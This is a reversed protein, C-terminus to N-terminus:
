DEDPMGDRRQKATYARSVDCSLVDSFLEQAKQWGGSAYQDYDVGLSELSRYSAVWKFDFEVKGGGYAPFLVWLGAESGNAGRYEAWAKLAPDVDSFTKGEKISCDSFTLIFSTADDDPPQKFNMTAFNSHAGCTAMENFEARLSGSDALFQDYARGMSVADPSVGLWIFDFDQEEGYYFPTMTYGSYPASNASDAWANWRDAWADLDSPGKGDNYNCTYIEVPVIKTSEEEKDQAFGNMAPALLLSGSVVWITINKM